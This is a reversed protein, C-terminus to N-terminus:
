QFEFPYLEEEVELNRKNRTFKHARSDIPNKSSIEASGSFLWPKNSIAKKWKQKTLLVYKTTIGLYPLSIRSKCKKESHWPLYKQTYIVYRLMIPKSALAKIQIELCTFFSMFLPRKARRIKPLTSTRHHYKWESDLMHKNKQETSTYM